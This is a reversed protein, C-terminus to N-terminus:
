ASSENDGEGETDEPYQEGGTYQPTQDQGGHRILVIRVRDGGDNVACYSFEVVFTPREICNM